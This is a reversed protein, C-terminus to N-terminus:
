FSSAVKSVRQAQVTDAGFKSVLREIGSRLDTVGQERDLLVSCAM